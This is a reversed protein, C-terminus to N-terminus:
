GQSHLTEPNETESSIFSSGKHFIDELLIPAIASLGNLVQESDLKLKNAMLTIDSNGPLHRCRGSLLCTIAQYVSTKQTVDIIIPSALLLFETAQYTTIGAGELCAAYDNTREEFFVQIFNM